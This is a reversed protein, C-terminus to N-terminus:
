KSIKSLNYACRSHSSVSSLTGHSTKYRDRENLKLHHIPCSNQDPCYLVNHRPGMSIYMYMLYRLNRRKRKELVNMPNIKGYTLANRYDYEYFDRPLSLYGRTLPTLSNDMALVSVMLMIRFKWSYLQLSIYLSINM